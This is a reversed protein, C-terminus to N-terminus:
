DGARIVAALPPAGETEPPQILAPTERWQSLAMLLIRVLVFMMLVFTILAVLPVSWTMALTIPLVFLAIKFAWEISRPYGGRAALVMGPVLLPAAGHTHSHFAAMFTVLMTALVQFPFRNSRPDWSGRWIVLLSSATIASLIM